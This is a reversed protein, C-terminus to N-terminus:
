FKTKSSKKGSFNRSAYKLSYVKKVSKGSIRVFFLVYAFSDAPLLINITLVHYGAFMKNNFAMLLFVLCLYLVHEFNLILFGFRHWQRREPTKM